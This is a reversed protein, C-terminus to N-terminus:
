AAARLQGFVREVQAKLSLVALDADHPIVHEAALPNALLANRIAPLDALVSEITVSPKARAEVERWLAQFFERQTALIRPGSHDGHGPGVVRPQLTEIYALYDPWASMEGDRVINFPGNAVLDGVFVIREGPLWVITDGRTHGWGYHHLEVTRDRGMISLFRDLMMTPPLLSTQGLDPRLKAVQEWRGPEGGFAAAEYRRMQDVMDKCAIISAGTAERIRRNAYIHDGHHHTNVVFRIPKDGVTSRVAELLADTRSPMNSDILLVEDGLDIWGNNCMLSRIAGAPGTAAGEQFYRTAGRLFFVGPSLEQPIGVSHDEDRPVPPSGKRAIEELVCCEAM